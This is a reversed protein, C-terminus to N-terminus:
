SNPGFGVDVSQKQIQVRAHYGQWQQPQIQSKNASSPNCTTWHESVCSKCSILTVLSNHIQTNEQELTWSDSLMRRGFVHHPSTHSFCIMAIFLSKKSRPFVLLSGFIPTVTKLPARSHIHLAVIDLIKFNSSIVPCTNSARDSSTLGKPVNRSAHQKASLWVCSGPRMKVHGPAVPMINAKHPAPSVHVIVPPIARVTFRLLNAKITHIWFPNPSSGECSILSVFTCLCKSFIKFDDLRPWRFIALIGSHVQLIIDVFSKTSKLWILGLWNCNFQFLWLSWGTWGSFRGTFLSFSSISGTRFCGIRGFHHKRCSALCWISWISRHMKTSCCGGCWCGILSNITLWLIHINWAFTFAKLRRLLPWFRATWLPRGLFGLSCFWRSRTLFTVSKPILTQKWLRFRALWLTLQCGLSCTPLFSLLLLFPLHGFLFLVSFWCRRLSLWLFFFDCPDQLHTLKNTIHHHVIHLSLRIWCLFGNNRIRFSGDLGGSASCIWYYRGVSIAVNKNSICSTRCVRMIVVNGFRECWIQLIGTTINAAFPAFMLTQITHSAVGASSVTCCRLQFVRPHHSVLGIM